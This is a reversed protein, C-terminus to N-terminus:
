ARRDLIMGLVLPEPLYGPTFGSDNGTALPAPAPTTVFKHVDRSLVYGNLRLRPAALVLWVAPARSTGEERFECVGGARGPPCVSPAMGPTVGTILNAAANM